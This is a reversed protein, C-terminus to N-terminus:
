DRQFRHSLECLSCVRGQLIGVAFGGGGAGCLSIASSVSRIADLVVKVQVGCLFVACDSDM